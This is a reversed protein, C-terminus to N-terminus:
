SSHINMQEVVFSSLEDIEELEFQPVDYEFTRDSVIALLESAPRVLDGGNARRVVAIKPAWGSKFGEMIVIDYDVFFRIMHDIPTERETKILM